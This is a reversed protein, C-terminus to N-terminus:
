DAVVMNFSVYLWVGAEHLRSVRRNDFIFLLIRRWVPLRSKPDYGAEEMEKEKQLIELAKQVDPDSLDIGMEKAKKQMEEQPLCHRM